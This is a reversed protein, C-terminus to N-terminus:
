DVKLRENIIKVVTRSKLLEESPIDKEKTFLKLPIQCNYLSVRLKEM